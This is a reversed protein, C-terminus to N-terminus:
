IVFKFEVQQLGKAKERRTAAAKRAAASARVKKLLKEPSAYLMEVDPLNVCHEWDETAAKVFSIEEARPPKTFTKNLLVCSCMPTGAGMYQIVSQISAIKSGFLYSLRWVIPEPVGKAILHDLAVNYRESGNGDRSRLKNYAERFMPWVDRGYAFTVILAGKTTLATQSTMIIDKMAECAVGCFDLHMADFKGYSSVFEQIEACPKKATTAYTANITEIVIRELDCCIVHNAGALKAQQAANPEKDVALISAKPMVSKIAQIEGDPAYGSLMMVNWKRHHVKDRAQLLMHACRWHEGRAFRKQDTIKDNTFSSKM